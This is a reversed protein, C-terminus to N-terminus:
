PTMGRIQNEVVALDADCGLAQEMAIELTTSRYHVRDREHWISWEVRLVPPGGSDTHDHHWVELEIAFTQRPWRERLLDYARQLTM